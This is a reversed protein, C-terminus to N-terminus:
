KMRATQRRYRRLHLSSWLSLIGVASFAVVIVLLLTFIGAVMWYEATTEPAFWNV